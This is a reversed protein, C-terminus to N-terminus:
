HLGSVTASFLVGQSSWSRQVPVEEQWVPTQVPKWGTTQEAESSQWRGPEQL